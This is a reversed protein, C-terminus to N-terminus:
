CKKLNVIRIWIVQETKSIYFWIFSVSFQAREEELLKALKLQESEEKDNRLLRNFSFDVM